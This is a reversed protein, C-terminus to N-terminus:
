RQRTINICIFINRYFISLLYINRLVKFIIMRTIQLHAQPYSLNCCNKQHEIRHTEDKYGQFCRRCYFKRHKNTSLDSLFRSFDKIYGFQGYYYLLDIEPLNTPMKSIYLPFRKKGDSVFSFVNIRLQLIQEYLTMEEPLVPYHIDDLHHFKMRFKLFSRRRPNPKRSQKPYFHFLISYAFSFYPRTQITAICKKNFLFPPLSM